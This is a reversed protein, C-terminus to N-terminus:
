VPEALLLLWKYKQCFINIGTFLWLCAPIRCDFRIIVLNSVCKARLKNRLVFIPQFSFPNAHNGSSGLRLCTHITDLSQLVCQLFLIALNCPLIIFFTVRIDTRNNICLLGDIIHHYHIRLGQIRQTFVRFITHILIRLDKANTCAHFRNCQEICSLHLTQYDRISVPNTILTDLFNFFFQCPCKVRQLAM